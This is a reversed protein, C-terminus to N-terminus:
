RLWRIEDSFEDQILDHMTKTQRDYVRWHTGGSKGDRTLDLAAAAAREPSDVQDFEGGYSVILSVVYRDEPEVYISSLEHSRFERSQEQATIPPMHHEKPQTRWGQALAAGDHGSGSKVREGSFM